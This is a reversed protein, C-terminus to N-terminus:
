DFIKKIMASLRHRKKKKDGTNPTSPTAPASGMTTSKAPTSYRSSSEGTAIDAAQQATSKKPTSPADKSDPTTASTPGGVASSFGGSGSPTASSIATASPGGTPSSMVGVGAPTLTSTALRAGSDTAAPPASSSSSVASASTVGTTGYAGGVNSRATPDTAVPAASALKSSALAGAAVGVATGAAAGGALVAPTSELGKGSTGEVPASVGATEAPVIGSSIPGGTVTTTAPQEDVTVADHILSHAAKTTVAEHSTTGTLSADPDVGNVGNAENAAMMRVAPEDALSSNAFQSRGGELQTPDETGDALALGAAPSVGPKIGVPRPPAYEVASADSTEVPPMIKPAPGVDAPGGDAVQAAANPSVGPIAAAATAASGPMTTPSRTASTSSLPAAASRESTIEPKTSDAVRAPEVNQDRHRQALAAAGLGAAGGAIAGGALAGAVPATTNSSTDRGPIATNATRGDTLADAAAAPTTASTSTTPATASTAATIAPAPEGASDVRAVKSQLEQEVLSKEAVVSSEAAAEPPAHAKQMSSEVAPPVQTALGYYSSQAAAASAPEGTAQSTPVKALLEKELASKEARIEDDLGAGVAATAGRQQSSTTTEEKKYAGSALAGVGVAGAGAAAVGAIVAEPAASRTATSPAPTTVPISTASASNLSRIVPREPDPTVNPIERTLNAQSQEKTLLPAGNEGASVIPAEKSSTSAAQSAIKDQVATSKEYQSSPVGSTANGLGFGSSQPATSSPDGTVNERATRSEQFHSAAVAGGVGVAGVGAAIAADRGINTDRGTRDPQPASTVPTSDQGSVIDERKQALPAQSATDSVAATKPAEPEPFLPEGTTRKLPSSSERATATDPHVTATSSRALPTAAAMTPGPGSADFLPAGETRRSSASQASPADPFLPAGETRKPPGSSERHVPTDDFRTATRPQSSSASPTTTPGPGAADFLPAGETRRFTSTNTPQQAALASTTTGPGSSQIFPSVGSTSSPEENMAKADRKPELPVRSALDATTTGPGSSQMFPTGDKGDSRGLASGVLAGLGATAAGAAGIIGAKKYADKTDDKVDNVSPATPNGIGSATGSGGVRDYDEKSTTVSSQLNDHGTAPLPSAAMQPDVTADKSTTINSADNVPLIGAPLAASASSATGGLIQPSEKSSAAADELNETRGTAPLPNVKFNDYEREIGPTEPFGGPMDNADDATRTETSKKEDVVAKGAAVATAGVAVAGSVVATGVAAATVGPKSASTGDTQAITRTVPRSPDPTVHPVTRQMNAESQQKSLLPAGKGGTTVTPAESLASAQSSPTSTPPAASSAIGRTVPRNPDPIINPVVRSLNAQSQEKTILPAGVGGASVTPAEGTTPPNSSSQVAQATKLGATTDASPQTSAVGTADASSAGPASDSTSIVRHGSTIREAAVAAGVAVTTGAAGAAVRAGSSPPSDSMSVVRHTHMPPVQPATSSSSGAASQVAQATNLGASTDQTPNVQRPASSSNDKNDRNDSSRTDAAVAKSSAFASPTNPQISAATSAGASTDAPVLVAAPTVNTYPTEDSTSVVRHGTPVRDGGTIGTPATPSTGTPASAQPPSDSMSLVRHGSAIQNTSSSTSAPPQDSTSLVKHETTGHAQGAAAAMGTVATGAAIAGPVAASRSSSLPTIDSPLLVNNVNFHGDDEKPAADDVIWKDDVVFKYM